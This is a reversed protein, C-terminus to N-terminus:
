ASLLRWRGEGPVRKRCINGRLRVLRIADEFEVAGSACLATYEGLSHGLLWDPKVGTEQVLVTYAAYSALLIGPQANETLTLKELPGAGILGAIDFGLANNARMNARGEDLYAMCTQMILSDAGNGVAIQEPKV